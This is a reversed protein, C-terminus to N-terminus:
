VSYIILPARCQCEYWGHIECQTAYNHLANQRRLALNAIPSFSSTLHDIMEMTIKFLTNYAYIAIGGIVM